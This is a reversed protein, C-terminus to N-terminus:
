EQIALSNMCRCTPMIDRVIELLSITLSSPDLSDPGGSWCWQIANFQIGDDGFIRGFFCLMMNHALSGLSLGIVWTLWSLQASDTQWIPANVIMPISSCSWTNTGFFFIRQCVYPCPGPLYSNMIKMLQDVVTTCLTLELIIITSTTLTNHYTLNNRSPFGNLQPWIIWNKLPPPIQSNKSRIKQNRWIFLIKKLAWLKGIKSNFFIEM